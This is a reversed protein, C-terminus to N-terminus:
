KGKGIFKSIKSGLISKFEKEIKEKMEDPFNGHTSITEMLWKVIPEVHQGLKSKEVDRLSDVLGEYKKLEEPTMGTELGLEKEGYGQFFHGVIRSEPKEVYVTRPKSTIRDKFLQPNDEFKYKMITNGDPTKLVAGEFMPDIKLMAKELAEKSSFTGITEVMKFGHKKCLDAVKSHPLFREREDKEMDMVDFVFFDVDKDGKYNAMTKRGVVEICLVKKPNENLFAGIQSGFHKKLLQHTNEDVAGGRLLCTWDGKGLSVVRVNYGNVKVQAVMPGELKALHLMEPYPPVIVGKVEARGGVSLVKSEMARKMVENNILHITKNLDM